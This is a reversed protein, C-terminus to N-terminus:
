GEFRANSFTGDPSRDVFVAHGAFVDGDTFFFEVTGNEFVLLGNFEFLHTL